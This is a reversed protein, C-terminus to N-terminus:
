LTYWGLGNALVPLLGFAGASRKVSQTGSHSHVRLSHFGWSQIQHLVLCKWRSGTPMKAAVLLTPFLYRKDTGPKAWVYYLLLLTAQWSTRTPILNILNKFLTTDHRFESWSLIWAMLPSSWPSHLCVYPSPSLGHSFTPSLFHWEYHGWILYESNYLSGFWLHSIWHATWPFDPSCWRM